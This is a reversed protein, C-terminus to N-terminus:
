KLVDQEEIPEIKALKLSQNLAQLRRLEIYTKLNSWLGSVPNSVFKSNPFQEIKSKELKIREEPAMLEPRNRMKIRSVFALEMKQNQEEELKKLFM